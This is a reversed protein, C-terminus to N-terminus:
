SRLRTRFTLGILGTGPEQPIKEPPIVMAALLLHMSMANLFHTFAEAELEHSPKQAQDQSQTTGRLGVFAAREILSRADRLERKSSLSNTAGNAKPGTKMSFSVKNM